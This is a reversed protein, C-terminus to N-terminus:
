YAKVVTREKDRNDIWSLSKFVKPLVDQYRDAGSFRGGAPYWRTKGLRPTFKVCGEYNNFHGSGDMLSLRWLERPHVFVPDRLGAMAPDDPSPEEVAEVDVDKLDSVLRVQEGPILVTRAVDRKPRAYVIVPVAEGPIGVTGILASVYKAITICDAAHVPDIALFWAGRTVRGDFKAGQVIHEVLKHPDTTNWQGCKKVAHALREYTFEDGDFRPEGRTVFLENETTTVPAYIAHAGSDLSTVIRAGTFQWRITFDLAEITGPLPMSSKVHIFQIGPEITRAPVHFGIGMAGGAGTVLGDLAAEVPRDYDNCVIVLLAVKKGGTHSVPRATVELNDPNFRYSWEGPFPKGGPEYDRPKSEDHDFGKDTMQKRHASLVNIGLVRLKKELFDAPVPRGLPGPLDLNELVRGLSGLPWSLSRPGGDAPIYGLTM